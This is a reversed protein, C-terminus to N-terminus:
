PPRDFLLAGPAAEGAAVTCVDKREILRRRGFARVKRPQQDEVGARRIRQVQPAIAEDDLELAHRVAADMILVGDVHAIAVVREAM